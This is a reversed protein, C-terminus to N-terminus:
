ARTLGRYQSPLQGVIRGQVVRPAVVKGQVVRGKPKKIVTKVENAPTKKTLRRRINETKIRKPPEGIDHVHEPHSSEGGNVPPPNPQREIKHTFGEAQDEIALRKQEFKTSRFYSSLSKRM